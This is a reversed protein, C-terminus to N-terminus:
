RAGRPLQLVKGAAIARQKPLGDIRAIEARMIEVDAQLKAAPQFSVDLAPLELAKFVCKFEFEERVALYLRAADNKDNSQEPDETARKIYRDISEFIQRLSFHKDRSWSDKYSGIIALALRSPRYAQLAKRVASCDSGSFSAEELNGAKCRLATLTRMLEGFSERDLKKTDHIGNTWARMTDESVEGARVLYVAPPKPAPRANIATVGNRRGTHAAPALAAADAPSPAPLFWERGQAREARRAPDAPVLADPPPAATPSPSTTTERAEPARATGEQPEPPLPLAQQLTTRSPPSSAQAGASARDNEAGVPDSSRPEEARSGDAAGAPDSRGLDESNKKSRFPATGGDRPPARRKANKGGRGANVAAAAEELEQEAKPGATEWWRWLAESLVRVRTCTGRAGEQVELFGLKVLKKRARVQADRRFSTARIMANITAIFWGNQHNASNEALWVYQALAVATVLDEDLAWALVPYLRVVRGFRNKREM